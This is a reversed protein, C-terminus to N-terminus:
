PTRWVNKDFTAITPCRTRQRNQTGKGVYSISRACFGLALARQSHCTRWKLRHLSWQAQLPHPQPSFICYWSSHRRALLDTNGPMPTTYWCRSMRTCTSKISQWTTGSANLSQWSGKWKATPRPTLPLRRWPSLKWVHLWRQLSSRSFNHDM